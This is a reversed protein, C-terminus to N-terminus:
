KLSDLIGSIERLTAKMADFVSATQSSEPVLASGAAMIISFSADSIDYDVGSLGGKCFADGITCAIRVRYNNGPTLNNPITWNKSGDNEIGNFPYAVFTGNGDVLSITVKSGSPFNTGSWRIQQTSGIAWGEGGNPSLVTISPQTTQVVAVSISKYVTNTGGTCALTYTTSTNPTYSYSNNSNNSVTHSLMGLTDSIGCYTNTNSTSWSLYVPQGATIQTPSATFSNIVPLSTTQAAISFPADNSDSASPKCCDATSINIQYSGAPVDNPITWTYYRNDGINTALNRSFVQGGTASDVLVISIGLSGLNSATWSIGHTSGIQWQEGGNPSLVTISPQSVSIVKLTVPNSLNWPGAKEAVGITHIGASLSPVVFSLENPSILTITTPQVSTGSAGDIGIFTANDFNTGYVHVTAGVSASTPNIYYVTPAQAQFQSSSIVTLTIPISIPSNSFNGNVVLNTTYTGPSTVKTADVSICVGMVGGPSLTLTQTSYGCNLWSPQNPVGLTFSISSASGNTLHLNYPPPNSQGQVVNFNAFTDSPILSSAQSIPTPTPTGIPISPTPFPTPTPIPISGCGYLQNLKKRTSVGVFGTGYKLGNPTLIEDRYKEQFGTIASAVEEDYTDTKGNLLGEKNLATGLNFIENGQSGIRLNTNFTYCWQSSSGQGAQLQKIQEMLAVIQAQLSAILEGTTQASSLSPMLLSAGIVASILFSSLKASSKPNM